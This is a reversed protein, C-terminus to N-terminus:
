VVQAVAPLILTFRAGGEQTRVYTVDGNQAAMIRQVLHLGLGNGPTNTTANSGRYFAEFLHKVDSEPVGLGRDIVSLAVRGPSGPVAVFRAEVEIEASYNSRGYKVANSLLNQLCRALASADAMVPPLGPQFHKAVTATGERLVTSMNQIAKDAVESVDVPAVEYRRRGSQTETYIMVQEVMESLRRAETQVIAAYEEIDERDKVVGAGLNHAASQIVALPTRLEHSVGAAFEMQLKGLRRARSGSVVMAFTGIGLVVLVGFSLVLNRKRFQMAAVEVSGTRHKVLLRWGQGVFTSFPGRGEGGGRFGREGGRQGRDGPPPGASPDQPIGGMVLRRPGPPGLLDIHFDPTSFDEDSWVGGSTFVTRRPESPRRTVVAVRYDQNEYNPFRRDVLAPLIQTTIVEHNLEAVLWRQNDIERPPAGGRSPEPPPLGPPGGPGRFGRGRMPGGPRRDLPILMVDVDAAFELPPGGRWSILEPVRSLYSPLSGSEFVGKARDLQLVGSEPHVFYLNKLLSPYPSTVAWERYRMGISDPDSPFQPSPELMLTLGRVENSFDEAFEEASEIVNRQLRQREAEAIQGIWQYQLGALVLLAILSVIVSMRLVM